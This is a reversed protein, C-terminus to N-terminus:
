INQQEVDDVSPFRLGEPALCLTGSGDALTYVSDENIPVIKAADAKRSQRHAEGRGELEFKVVSHIPEVDDGENTAIEQM